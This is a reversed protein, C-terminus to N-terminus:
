FCTYGFILYVNSNIFLWNYVAVNLQEFGMSFHVFPYETKQEKSVIKSKCNSNLIIYFANDFLVSYM